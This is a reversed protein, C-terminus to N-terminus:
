VATSSICLPPPYGKYPVFPNTIPVDYRIRVNDDPIEGAMTGYFLYVFEIKSHLFM